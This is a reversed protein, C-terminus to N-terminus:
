GEQLTPEAATDAFVEELLGLATRLARRAARADYKCGPVGFDQCAPNTYSHFVNGMLLLQCDVGASALVSLFKANEALPAYPDRDGNCILVRARITDTDHGSRCELPTHFGVIARLDAGSRGLELAAQGGFCYGVAAMRHPDVHPHEALVSLAASTRARLEEYGTMLGEIVALVDDLAEPQCGFLDPAFAVYGQDAFLRAQDLTREVLGGGEHLVLIGPAPRGGSGDIVYGRFRQSGASYWVERPAPSRGDASGM